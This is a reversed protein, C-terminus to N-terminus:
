LKLEFVDVFLVFLSTMGALVTVEALKSIYRPRMPLKRLLARLTRIPCASLAKAWQFSLYVAPPLSAPTANMAVIFMM